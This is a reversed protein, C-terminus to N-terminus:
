EQCKTLKGKLYEEVVKKADIKKDVWNDVLKKIDPHQTVWDVMLDFITKQKLEDLTRTIAEQLQAVAVRDSDEIREDRTM